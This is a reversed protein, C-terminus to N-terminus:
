PTLQRVVKGLPSRNVIEEPLPSQVTDPLRNVVCKALSQAPGFSTCRGGAGCHQVALAYPGGFGPALSTVIGALFDVAAFSMQRDISQTQNQCDNYMWGVHLVLVASPLQESLDAM